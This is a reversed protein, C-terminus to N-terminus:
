KKRVPAQLEVIMESFRDTVTVDIMDCALIDGTIEYGNEECYDLISRMSNKELHLYYDNYIACVYEGEPIIKRYKKPAKKFSNVFIFPVYPGYDTNMNEESLPIFGGEKSAGIMPAVENLLSELFVTNEAYDVLTHLLKGSTVVKREEFHKLYAGKPIADKDLFQEILTLKKELTRKLAVLQKLKEDFEANLDKLMEFSKHINKDEYYERVMNVSMGLQRLQLISGLLDYRLVDYYRARNEDIYDPKFLGIRDYYRLTETTIDLRRALDTISILKLDEQYRQRFM